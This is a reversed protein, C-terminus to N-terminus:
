LIFYLVTGMMVKKTKISFFFHKLHIKASNDKSVCNNKQLIVSLGPATESLNKLKPVSLDKLM